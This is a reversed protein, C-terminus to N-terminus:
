PEAPILRLTANDTNEAEDAITYVIEERVANRRVALRTVYFSSSHLGIKWFNVPSATTAQEEDTPVARVGLYRAREPMSIALGRTKHDPVHHFAGANDETHLYSGQEDYFDLVFQDTQTRLLGSASATYLQLRRGPRELDFVLGQGHPEMFPKWNKIRPVFKHDIARSDTFSEKVGLGQSSNSVSQVAFPMRDAFPRFLM